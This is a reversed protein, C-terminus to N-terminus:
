KLFKDIGLRKRLSKQYYIILRTLAFDFVLFIILLLPFGILLYKIVDAEPAFLKIGVFATLIYAATFVGLKILYSLKSKIKEALSKVIPYYGFFCAFYLVPDKIPLLLLGLISAIAWVSFAYSYGLECVAVVTLLSAIAAASLTVTELFSGLLLFVVALASLIATLAIKKTSNM